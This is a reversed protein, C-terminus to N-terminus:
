VKPTGFMTRQSVIEVNTLYRTVFVSVDAAVISGRWHLAELETQETVMLLLAERRTHGRAYGRGRM